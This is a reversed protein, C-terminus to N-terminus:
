DVLPLIEADALQHLGEEVLATVEYGRERLARTTSPAVGVDALLKL